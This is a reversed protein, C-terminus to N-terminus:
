SVESEVALVHALALAVAGKVGADPGLQSFEIRLNQTSRPHARRLVEQRIASLLKPGAGSVGGGILILGPNFFNVIGALAEGIMRGSEQIIEISPQDGAAAAESVDRATLTEGREEVLRGLLPSREEEAM